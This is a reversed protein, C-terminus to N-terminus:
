SLRNEDRRDSFGCERRDASARIGYSQLGHAYYVPSVSLCRDEPTLKFWTRVRAAAALMNRHSFPILKPKSTTGSTQLIFAPAEADPEEDLAAISDRLPLLHINLATEHGPHVELTPIGDREAISRVACESNQWILLCDPRLNAFSTEIEDFTQRPNLPIAIASCSVSLIALAAYPGSPVAVAIRASRGFGAARLAKRIECVVRELDAYTLLGFVTSVIAPRDSNISCQREIAQKITSPIAQDDSRFLEAAEAAM